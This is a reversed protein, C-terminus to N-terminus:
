PSALHPNRPPPFILERELMELIVIDTVQPDILIPDFDARWSIICSHFHFSLFPIMNTFFSDRFVVADPLRPDEQYTLLSGAVTENDMEKYKGINRIWVNFFKREEKHTMEMMVEDFEGQLGLNKALDMGEGVTANFDFSAADLPWLKPFIKALRSMVAQYATFAGRCNWHSDTKHYLLSWEKAELIASRTDIVMLDSNAELYEILQDLRSPRAQPRLYDPLYEPYITHKNPAFFVAFAIGQRKLWDRRDELVEKWQRLEDETFPHWGLHYHIVQRGKYFLWGDKGVIVPLRDSDPFFRLLVRNHFTILLNRLGFHDNFFADFRGAYERFTQLDSPPPPLPAPNRNEVLEVEPDAGLASILLPIAIATM